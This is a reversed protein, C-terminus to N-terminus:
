KSTGPSPTQSSSSGNGSSSGTGGTGSSSGTGGPLTSSGRNYDLGGPSTAGGTSPSGSIMGFHSYVSQRWSYQTIDPWNSQEFSPASQLKSADGSFTFTQQGSSLGTSTGSASTGSASSPRLMLWPVAVLKGGTSTDTTGTASPTTSSASGSSSSSSLVAFDIRGSSPNLILDNITGLSQGQSSKVDANIIKSARAEQQNMRGLTSRSSQATSPDSSVGPPLTSSNQAAVSLALGAACIGLSKMIYNRM